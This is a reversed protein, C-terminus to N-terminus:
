PAHHRTRRSDIRSLASGQRNTECRNGANGPGTEHACSEATDCRTHELGTKGKGHWTGDHRTTDWRQTATDTCKEDMGNRQKAMRSLEDGQEATASRDRCPGAFSRRLTEFWHTDVELGRTDEGRRDKGCGRREVGIGVRGHSRAASRNRQQEARRSRQRAMGSSRSASRNGDWRQKATERITPEM